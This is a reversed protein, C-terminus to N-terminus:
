RPPPPASDALTEDALLHEKAYLGRNSQNYEVKLQVAVAHLSTIKFRVPAWITRGSVELQEMEFALLLHLAERTVKSTESPSYYFTRQSSSATRANFTKLELYCPPDSELEVDPYGAAATRGSATKPRAAKLGAANLAQIVLPEVANGVENARAKDIMAERAARAANRAAESLKALIARHADSEPNFPIVNQGTTQRIVDAFLYTGEIDAGPPERDPEAAVGAVATVALLMAANLRKM